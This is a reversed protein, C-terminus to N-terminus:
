HTRPASENLNTSSRIEQVDASKIRAGEVLLVGSQTVQIRNVTGMITWPIEQVVLADLSVPSADTHGAAERPLYVPWKECPM